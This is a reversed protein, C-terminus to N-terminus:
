FLPLNDNAVKYNLVSFKKPDDIKNFYFKDDILFHHATFPLNTFFWKCHVVFFLQM